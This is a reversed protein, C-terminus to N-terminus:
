ASVPHRAAVLAAEEKGFEEQPRAHRDARDIRAEPAGTAAEKAPELGYVRGREEYRNIGRLVPVKNFRGTAFAERPHPQCPHPGPVPLSGTRAGGHEGEGM